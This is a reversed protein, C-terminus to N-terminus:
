AVAVPEKAKRKRKPEEPVVEAEGQGEVVGEAEAKAEAETAVAEAQTVAQGQPTALPMVMLQYGNTSFLVPSFATKAQLDVMGGCARLAETLYGGALRVKVTEGETDAKVEAQGIRESDAMEIKGEGITLDIAPAKSGALANLSAVAKMAEVTDFHARTDAETPILQRYNPYSGDRGTWKYRILETDLIINKGDLEGDPEFTIRARKARKLANVIGKLDDNGVLCQGEGEDYDLTVIALRFGDSTVLALRGDTAEFNVCQLVPRADDRATFPLVRALAEALEVGGINPKVTNHPSVRVEAFSFPTNDGIWTGDGLHSVNSGCIVKLKRDAVRVGSADGNSPVVKVINSGGLAKLYGLFGKRGISIDLLMLRDALARSVANVLVAKHAM